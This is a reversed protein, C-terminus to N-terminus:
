NQMQIAFLLLDETALKESARLDSEAKALWQKHSQM